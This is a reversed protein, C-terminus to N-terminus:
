IDIVWGYYFFFYFLFFGEAHVVNIGRNHKTHIYLFISGWRSLINICDSDTGTKIGWKVRGIYVSFNVIVPLSIRHLWM